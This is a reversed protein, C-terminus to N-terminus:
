NVITGNDMNATIIRQELINTLELIIANPSTGSKEIAATPSQPQLGLVDLVIACITFLPGEKSRNPHYSRRVLLHSNTLYSVDLKSSLECRRQSDHHKERDLLDINSISQTLLFRKSM